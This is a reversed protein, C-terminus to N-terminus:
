EILIAYNILWGKPTIQISKRRQDDEDWSSVALGHEELDRVYPRLAQASEFGLALFDSPSFSGGFNQSTAKNFVDWSTPRLSVRIDKLINLSHIRLWREFNAKKEEETQPKIGNEDVFECYSHSHHLTSRINYNLITYLQAFDDGTLPMYHESSKSGFYAVRTNFIEIGNVDNMREVYIPNGLYGELRPSSVISNIIGNAGCLVWRLGEITFIEDRLVEITRRADKSTELLEINDIICCVGGFQPEPFIEDLWGEIQKSFGSVEYGLNASGAPPKGLSIWDSLGLQWGEEAPSNLWADIQKHGNMNLGLQRIEKRREILTQAVEILVDFKFQEPKTDKVIQFTKRCPIILPLKNDQLYQKYLRFSSINVLSTKGIGNKGEIPLITGGAQLKRQASKIEKQRGIFLSSGSEDPLLPKHDFPNGFFGWESYFSM